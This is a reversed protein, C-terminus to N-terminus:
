ADEAFRPDDIGPKPKGEMARCHLVPVVLMTMIEIATGGFSPIATPVVIDRGRGTSTLAPILAPLATATMMLCPRVRRMGLLSRVNSQSM